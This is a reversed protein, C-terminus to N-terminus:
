SETEEKPLTHLLPQPQQGETSDPWKGLPCTETAMRVKVSLFCGCEGCRSFIGDNSHRDCTNCVALLAERQPKTRTPLGACTWKQVANAAKGVQTALNPTTPLEENWLKKYRGDNRYLWCLRCQTKDWPKGILCRECDCPRKM